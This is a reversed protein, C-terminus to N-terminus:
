FYLEPDDQWLFIFHKLLKKPNRTKNQKKQKNKCPAALLVDYRERETYIYIYIVSIYVCTYVYIHM